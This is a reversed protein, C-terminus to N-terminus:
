YTICGSGNVAPKSEVNEALEPDTKDQTISSSLVEFNNDRLDPCMLFKQDGNGEKVFKQYM